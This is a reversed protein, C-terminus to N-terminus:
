VKSASSFRLFSGKFNTTCSNSCSPNSNVGKVKVKVKVKLKEQWKGCVDIRLLAFASISHATLVRSVELSAFM